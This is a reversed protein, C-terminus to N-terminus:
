FNAKFLNWSMMLPGRLSRGRLGTTTGATVRRSVVREIMSESLVAHLVIRGM